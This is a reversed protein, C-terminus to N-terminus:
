STQNLMRQLLSMVQRPKEFLSMHGSDKILHYDKWGLTKEDLLETPILADKEGHIIGVQEPNEKLYESFDARERMAISAYAYWEAVGSQAETVLKEIEPHYNGPNLFLNPIAESIFRNKSKLLIDAVRTRETKKIDSDTWFNSNLLVLKQVSETNKLLELGTYGGMSHGVVQCRIVNYGALLLEVEEAFYRISPHNDDFLNSKGSGPLDILLVPRQLENLPLQYWISHTELFGHLLVVPNEVSGNFPIWKHFLGPNNM